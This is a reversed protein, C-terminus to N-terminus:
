SRPLEWLTRLPVHAVPLSIAPHLRKVSSHGIQKEGIMERGQGGARGDIRTRWGKLRESEAEKGGTMEGRM